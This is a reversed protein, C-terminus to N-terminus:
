PIRHSIVAWRLDAGGSTFNASTNQPIGYRIWPPDMAYQGISSHNINKKPLHLYIYIIYIGYMNFM